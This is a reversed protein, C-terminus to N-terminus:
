SPITIFKSLKSSLSQLTIVNYPHIIKLPHLDSDHLSFLLFFGVAETDVHKNNTFHQM